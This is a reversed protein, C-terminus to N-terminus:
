IRYVHEDPIYIYFLDGLKAHAIFVEILLLFKHEVLSFGLKVFYQWVRKQSM